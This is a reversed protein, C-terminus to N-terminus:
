SCMCSCDRHQPVLWDAILHWQSLKHVTHSNYERIAEREDAIKAKPFVLLRLSGFRHQLSASLGSHHFTKGFFGACSSYFPCACQHLNVSRSAWNNHIRHDCLVGAWDATDWQRSVLRVPSHGNVSACYPDGKVPQWTVHLGRSRNELYKFHSSVKWVPRMHWETVLKCCKSLSYHRWFTPFQMSFSVADCVLLRLDEAVGSSSAWTEYIYQPLQRRYRYALSSSWIRFM